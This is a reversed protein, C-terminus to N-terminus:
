QKVEYCWLAPDYYGRAVLCRFDRGTKPDPADFWRESDIDKNDGPIEAEKPDPIDPGDNGSEGCAAGALVLTVVAMRRM